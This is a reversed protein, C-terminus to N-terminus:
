EHIHPKYGVILIGVVVVVVCVCGLRVKARPAVGDVALYLIRTPKVIRVMKDIYAIMTIAVDGVSKM